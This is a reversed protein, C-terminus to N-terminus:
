AAKSFDGYDVRELISGDELKLTALYRKKDLEVVKAIKGREKGNVIRVRKGEKPVVTELDDQDLRLIDGGDQEEPGSDLIEVECTFKDDLVRDIVGKRKFYKGGALQKSIIRVLIDSCVWNETRESSYKKKKTRTGLLEESSIPRKKEPKPPAVKSTPKGPEEEEEEDDDQGDLGFASKTPMVAASKKKSGAASTLSLSIEVNANRDLKSAEIEVTGGARDLAKAAEIRQIEMQKALKVESAKEAQVRRQQAEERALISADREIYSIYWGRETEEVVCKGMKGLYQVFDTLTAWKTANMHVHHRDQIVEQYVNNANVRKTGHRQRLTDLYLKEFEKSMGDMIGMANDSFIKMQRLHSESTLHCKFGNQDRCQKQCMQCYFKLKQLGKAKIRNAIDKASGKEAKPM